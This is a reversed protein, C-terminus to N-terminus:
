KKIWNRAASIIKPHANCLVTEWDDDIVPRLKAKEIMFEYRKPRGQRLLDPNLIFVKIAEAFRESLNPEYSTVQSEGRFNMKRSIFNLHLDILHGFEHALVGAPTLDAKYGPFTWVFGPKKTIPRCKAVNIFIRRPQNNKYMGFWRGLAKTDVIEPIPINPNFACFETIRAQGYKLMDDKTHIDPHPYYM